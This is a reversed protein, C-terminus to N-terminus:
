SQNVTRGRTGTAASPSPVRVQQTQWAQMDARRHCAAQGEPRTGGESQSATRMGLSALVHDIVKRTQDRKDAANAGRGWDLVDVSVDEIYGGNGDPVPESTVVVEMGTAPDTLHSRMGARQDKGQYAAEIKCLGFIRSLEGTLRDVTIARDDSSIAAIGAFTAAEQADTGIQLAEKALDDLQSVTLNDCDSLQKELAALRGKAKGFDGNSWLDADVDIDEVKMQRVTDIQSQALIRAQEAMQRHTQWVQEAAALEERLRLAGEFADKAAARAVPASAHSNEGEATAVVQRASARDAEAAALRDPLLLDARGVTRIDELIAQTQVDYERAMSLSASLDQGLNAIRGEVTGLRGHLKDIETGIRKGMERMQSQLQTATQTIACEILRNNAEIADATDKRVSAIGSQFTKQADRIRQENAATALRIRKDSQQVVDQLERRLSANQLATKEIRASLSSVRVTLDENRKVAEQLSAQMSQQFSQSQQAERQAEQLQRQMRDREAGLDAAQRQYYSVSM